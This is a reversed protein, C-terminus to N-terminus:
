LPLAKTRDAIACLTEKIWSSSNLSNALQKLPKSSNILSYNKARLFQLLRSKRCFCRGLPSKLSIYTGQTLWSTSATRHAATSLTSARLYMRGSHYIHQGRLNHTIRGSFLPWSVIECKKLSFGTSPVPTSRCGLNTQTRIWPRTHHGPLYRSKFIQIYM